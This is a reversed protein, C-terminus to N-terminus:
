GASSPPCARRARRAGRAGGRAPGGRRRDARTAEFREEIGEDGARRRDHVSAAGCRTSRATTSSASSGRACAAAAATTARAAAGSRCSRRRCSTRPSSRARRVHPLRALLRRRCHRDYVVEFARADGGSCSSCSIRTPSTARVTAHAPSPQRADPSRLSWRKAAVDSRSSGVPRTPWIASPASPSTSCTRAVARPPPPQRSRVRLVVLAAAPAPASSRPPRAPAGLQAPRADGVAGM